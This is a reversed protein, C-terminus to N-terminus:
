MSVRKIGKKVEEEWDTFRWVTIYEGLGVLFLALVQGVWLGSLGLLYFSPSGFM